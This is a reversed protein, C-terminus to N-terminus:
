DIINIGIFLGVIKKALIKGELLISLGYLFFIMGVFLIEEAIINRFMIFPTWLTYDLFLHVGVIFGFLFLFSCTILYLLGIVLKAKKFDKFIPRIAILILVIGLVFFNPGIGMYLPTFFALISFDSSFGLMLAIGIIVLILGIKLNKKM